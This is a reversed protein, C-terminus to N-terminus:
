QGSVKLRLHIAKRHGGTMHRDGGSTPAPFTFTWLDIRERWSNCFIPASTSFQGTSVRAQLIADVRGIPDMRQHLDDSALPRFASMPKLEYYLCQEEM